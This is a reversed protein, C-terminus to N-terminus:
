PEPPLTIMQDYYIHDANRLEPNARQILRFLSADGYAQLAIASLMDGKVVRYRSGPVPGNASNDASNNAPSADPAAERLPPAAAPPESPPPSPIQVDNRAEPAPPAPKAPDAAAPQKD